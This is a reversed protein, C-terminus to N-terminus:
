RLSELTDHLIFVLIQIVPLCTPTSAPAQKGTRQCGEMDKLTKLAQLGCMKLVEPCLGGFHNIVSRNNLFMTSMRFLVRAKISFHMVEFMVVYALASSILCESELGLDLRHLTRAPEGSFHPEPLAPWRAVTSLEALGSSM